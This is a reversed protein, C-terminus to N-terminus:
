ARYDTLSAQPFFIQCSSFPKSDSALRPVVEEIVDELTILGVVENPDADYQETWEQLQQGNSEADGGQRGGNDNTILICM